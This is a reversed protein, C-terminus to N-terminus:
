RQGNRARTELRGVRGFGYEAVHGQLVAHEPCSLLPVLERLEPVDIHHAGPFCARRHGYRYLTQETLANGFTEYVYLIFVEGLHSPNLEVLATV